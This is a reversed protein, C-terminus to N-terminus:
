FIITKDQNRIIRHQTYLHVAEALAEKELGKGKQKLTSVSDKHSVPSVAQAIIPGEDLDPTVFHATAGIIKVGRDYAQQYPNAGRFSPLFSHHINIMDKGYSVLFDPSLIQMYRALVLFDTQSQILSLIETEKRDQSTAPIWYFPIGHRTAIPELDPHNGIILPIDVQLEESRWRYLLEELCHDTKSVMIGMKPRTRLTNFQVTGKLTECLTHLMLSIESELAPSYSVELRIYFHPPTDHTTFQDLDEINVGLDSLGSSLQSIIGVQDLCDLTIVGRFTM